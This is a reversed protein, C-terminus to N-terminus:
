NTKLCALLSYQEALSLIQHPDNLEHKNVNIHM